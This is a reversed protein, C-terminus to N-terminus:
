PEEVSAPLVSRRGGEPGARQLLSRVVDLYLERQHVWRYPESVETARRVLQERRGPDAHLEAIARALDHENGSEFLAFCEDGFYSEVATTRSIIVPKRMAILDYMKNCHTRDRFADRRIAVVGVDAAAICPLLEDIPLFGKSFWVREQLGNKAVLAELSPRQPGEGYIRLRLGPISDRLLAVARIVVDIGFNPDITGHCILVFDDDDRKTSPFRQPALRDEDFSNLVVGIKERPAGREVFLDRMQDTCTTVRDAFAISAQEIRRLARVVPHGLSLGYKTAAYEPMCEHLDLLVRAGLARPIVAAFVLWDPLSNVQVVDYRRRLHLVAAVATAALQFTVFEFFYRLLGARRRAIPLRYVAVRGLQEFRPQGPMRTCILDVEHGARVLADIERNVREDVPFYWARIVCIRAM